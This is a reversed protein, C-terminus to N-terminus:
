WPRGSGAPRCGARTYVRYSALDSSSVHDWVLLIGAPRNPDGSPDLQYALDQPPALVPLVATNSSCGFGLLTAALLAHRSSFQMSTRPSANPRNSSCAAHGRSVLTLM